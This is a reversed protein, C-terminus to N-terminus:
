CKVGRLINNILTNLRGYDMGSVVCNIHKNSEVFQIFKHATYLRLNDITVLINLDYCINSDIIIENNYIAAGAHILTKFVKKPKKQYKYYTKFVGADLKDLAAKNKVFDGSIALNYTKVYTERACEILNFIFQKQNHKM